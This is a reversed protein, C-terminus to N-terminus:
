AYNMLTGMWDIGHGSLPGGTLDVDRWHLSWSSLAPSLKSPVESFRSVGCLEVTINSHSKPSKFKKPM